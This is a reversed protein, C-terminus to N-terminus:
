RRVRAPSVALNYVIGTPVVGFGDYGPVGDSGFETGPDANGTTITGYSDVLTPLGDVALTLCGDATSLETTAAGCSAGTRTGDVTFTLGKKGFLALPIRNFTQVLEGGGANGDSLGLVVTQGDPTVYVYIYAGDQEGPQGAALQAKDVLGILAFDNAKATRLDLTGTFTVPGLEPRTDVAPTAWQYDHSYGAPAPNGVHRLLVQGGPATQADVQQGVTGQFRFSKAGSEGPAASAVGSALVPGVLVGMMLAIRIKM